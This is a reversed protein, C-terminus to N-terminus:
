RGTKLQMWLRTQLRMIDSPLTKFAWLRQMTAQNPYVSQDNLIEAPLYQRAETNAIPYYITKIIDASVKPNMIYNLWKMASAPHQADKPIAMMESWIPAGEKPIIYSIKYNKGAERARRGAMGVDGSWGVAFCIDNNALDNIYGSSNFQTIYPRISKMLQFAAQWDAPNKSNPDKHLYFLAIPLVDSPSDLVSVGCHSLKSIYEPKFLIDWSNLPANEGLAAKAKNLNYGLGDTGWTYPIAYQGANEAGATIKLIQKDINVLNPIAATDIKQFIGAETEKNFYQVSPHVIDYGSKGTLLKALLTDDSDYVDYKVKINTEKEFEAVTNKGTNDSWNYINIQEGAAATHYIASGIIISSIYKLHHRM